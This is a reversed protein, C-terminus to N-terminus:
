SAAREGAMDRSQRKQDLASRGIPPDGFIMSTRSAYRAPPLRIANAGANAGAESPAAIRPRGSRAGVTFKIELRSALSRVSEINRGLLAATESVTMGKACCNRVTAMEHESFRRLSM